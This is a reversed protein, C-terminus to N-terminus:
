APRHGPARDSTTVLADPAIFDREHARVTLVPCSATRVVREAASGLLFQQVANRGHTGVVILDIAHEAAYGSIGSAASLSTQVVPVVSLTNRDDQTIIADLQQRAGEELENQVNPSVVGFEPGYRLMVDEVVHLVHLTARYSRALDRGYALAVASPESFDTAVLVNKIVIM